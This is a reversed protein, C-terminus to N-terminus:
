MSTTSTTALTPALSHRHLLVLQPSPPSASVRMCTIPCALAPKLRVVQQLSLPLPSPCQPSPLRHSHPQPRPSQPSPHPQPTQHLQLGAGAAFARASVLCVLPWAPHLGGAQAHQLPTSAALTQQPPHRQHQRHQHQHRLPPHHLPPHVQHPAPHGKGAYATPPAGHQSACPTATRLQSAVTTTSPAASAAPAAHMPPLGVPVAPPLLSKCSRAGMRRPLQLCSLLHLNSLFVCQASCNCLKYAYAPLSSLPPNSSVQTCLQQCEM